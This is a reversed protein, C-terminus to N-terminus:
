SKGSTEKMIQGVFFGFLKEKGSKYQEVEKANNELVRKVIKTIEAENNIQKLGKADIVDRATKNKEFMEAFVEKAM